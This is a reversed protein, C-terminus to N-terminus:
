SPSLDMTTIMAQDTHLGSLTKSRVHYNYVVIDHTRILTLTSEFRSEPSSLVWYLCLSDSCSLCSGCASGSTRTIQLAKMTRSAVCSAAKLAQMEMLILKGNPM